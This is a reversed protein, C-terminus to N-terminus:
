GGTLRNTWRDSEFFFNYADNDSRVQKLCRRVQKEKVRKRREEEAHVADITEAQLKSDKLIKRM